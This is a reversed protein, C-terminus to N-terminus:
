AQWSAALERYRDAYRSGRQWILTFDHGFALDAPTVDTLAGAALEEAVAVRYLFSVGLGAAVAAKIAAISGLEIVRAFDAFGLDRATLHKELIERTGSGTERVILPQALLDALAHRTVPVPSKAFPNAKTAAARDDTEFRPSGGRVTDAASHISPGADIISADHTSASAAREAGACGARRGLREGVNPAAVAVYAEHSLTAADFGGHDFPGEVLAADLEGADLRRVLEHTNEVVLSLEDAPHEVLHSVILQPMVFEGITRTAGLRLRIGPEERVALAALEGALRREDNVQASLAQYLLDGAATPEISRGHKCFLTCGYHRELHKVHQSAAPQTINLREAARTFNRCRYVELFTHSRIDLM